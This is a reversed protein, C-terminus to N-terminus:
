PHPQPFKQIHPHHSPPIYIFHYIHWKSRPIRSDMGRRKQPEHDGGGEVCIGGKQGVAYYLRFVYVAFSGGCFLHRKATVGSSSGRCHIM